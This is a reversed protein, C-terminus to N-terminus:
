VGFSHIVPRTKVKDVKFRYHQTIQNQTKTSKKTYKSELYLKEVFSSKYEKQLSLICPMNLMILTASIITKVRRYLFIKAKTINFAQIIFM